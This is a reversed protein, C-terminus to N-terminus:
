FDCLKSPKGEKDVNGVTFFLCRAPARNIQKKNGLRSGRVLGVCGCEKQRGGWLFYIRM